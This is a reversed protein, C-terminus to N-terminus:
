KGSIFYLSLLNARGGKIVISKHDPLKSLSCSICTWHEEKGLPPTINGAGWWVVLGCALCQGTCEGNVPQFSYVASPFIKGWHFCPGGEKWPLIWRVLGCVRRSTRQKKARHIVRRQRDLPSAEFPSSFGEPLHKSSLNSQQFGPATPEFIRQPHPPSLSPPQSFM